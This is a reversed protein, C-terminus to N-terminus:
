DIPSAGQSDLVDSQAGAELLSHIVQERDVKVAWHLATEGYVNITDVQIGEQKLLFVVFRPDRRLSAFHLATSGVDAVKPIYSM